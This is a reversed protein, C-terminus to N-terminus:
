RAPPRARAPHRRRPPRPAGARQLGLGGPGGQCPLLASRRLPAGLRLLLAALDAAVLADGPEHVARRPLPLAPRPPRHHGRHGPDAPRALRGRRAVLRARAREDEAAADIMIQSITTYARVWAAETEQTGSRRRRVPDARRDPCEGVAPYHEPRTGYKRHGRGLNQSTTPSCGANDIHEAATLLAKLLRDRQADM